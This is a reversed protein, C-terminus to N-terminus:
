TKKEDIKQLDVDDREVIEWVLHYHHLVHKTRHYSKPEKAQVVVRTNDYYVMIPSELVLVVGLEDLFKWLWVAEKAADSAVIYEAEYVSDAM